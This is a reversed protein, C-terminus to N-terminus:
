ELETHGLRTERNNKVQIVQPAYPTDRVVEIRAVWGLSPDKVHIVMAAEDYQVTAQPMSDPIFVKVRPLGDKSLDTIQFNVIFFLSIDEILSSCKDIILTNMIKRSENKVSMVSRRRYIRTAQLIVPGMVIQASVFPLRRM